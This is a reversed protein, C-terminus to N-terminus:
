FPLKYIITYTVGMTNSGYKGFGPVYWPDGYKDTSASMKFKFRLSLGMHIAEWVHARIGVGFELWQMSGKMGKHSYPISGGWIEDELNPNGVIGGYIPDDIALAEVDYKFSSVGYRLGVLLMNGHKKKYLANYDMGIRFYPAGTKYHIGKDNWADTTGFGIEVTPFYRNKLNVDAVIEPSLFDGGLVKSGIGWLDLGVSVGNYLPFKVEDKTEKKEGKPRTSGGPPASPNRTQAQSPFSMLLCLALSITYNLIKGEM